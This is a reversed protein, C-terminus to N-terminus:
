AEVAGAKQFGKEFAEVRNAQAAGLAPAGLKVGTKDVLRRLGEVGVTPQKDDMAAFLLLGCGILFLGIAISLRLMVAYSRFEKSLHKQDEETVGKLGPADLLLPVGPVSSCVSTCNPNQSKDQTVQGDVVFRPFQDSCMCYGTKGGIGTTCDADGRPNLKSKSSRPDNAGTVAFFGTCAAPSFDDPSSTGM